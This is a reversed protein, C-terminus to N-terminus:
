VVRAPKARSRVKSSSQENGHAEVYADLL